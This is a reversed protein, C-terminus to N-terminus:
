RWAGEGEMPMRGGWLERDAPTFDALHDLSLVRTSGTIERRVVDRTRKRPELDLNVVVLFRSGERRVRTRFLLPYHMDTRRALGTEEAFEPFGLSLNESM